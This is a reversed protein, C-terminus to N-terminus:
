TTLLPTVIRSYLACVQYVGDIMYLIFIRLGFWRGERGFRYLEPLAMLVTDDVWDYILLCVALMTVLKKGALRDFVGIGIVPAVTWFSNWFLLYTYELVSSIINILPELPMLTMLWKSIQVGHVISKSGGYFM